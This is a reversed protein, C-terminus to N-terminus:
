SNQLYKKIKEKLKEINHDSELCNFVYTGEMEGFVFKGENAIDFNSVTLKERMPIYFFYEKPNKNLTFRICHYYGEYGGHIMEKIHISKHIDKDLFDEILKHEVFSINKRESKKKKDIEKYSENLYAPIYDWFTLIKRVTRVLDEKYLTLDYKCKEIELEKESIYRKIRNLKEEIKFENTENEFSSLTKM